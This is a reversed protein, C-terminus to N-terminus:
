GNDNEMRSSNFYIKPSFVLRQNLQYRMRIGRSKKICERLMFNGIKWIYFVGVASYMVFLAHKRFFDIKPSSYFDLNINAYFGFARSRSIPMKMETYWETNSACRDGRRARVYKCCLSFRFRGNSHCRHISLFVLKTASKVIKVSRVM